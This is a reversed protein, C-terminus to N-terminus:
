FFWIGLGCDSPPEIFVEDPEGITKESEIKVTDICDWHLYDHVAIVKAKTERLVKTTFGTTHAGDEFLLDCVKNKEDFYSHLHRKIYPELALCNGKYHDEIDYTDVVGFGNDLCGLALFQTSCGWRTGVEIIRKPKHERVLEYLRKGESWFISGPPYKEPYAGLDNITM